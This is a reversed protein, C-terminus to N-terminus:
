NRAALRPVCFRHLCAQEEGLSSRADWPEQPCMPTTYLPLLGKLPVTAGIFGGDSTERGKHLRLTNTDEIQFVIFRSEGDRNDGEGSLIAFEVEDHARRLACEKCRPRTRSPVEPRVCKRLITGPQLQQM